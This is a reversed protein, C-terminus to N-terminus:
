MYQQRRVGQMEVRKQRGSVYVAAEASRTDLRRGAHECIGSGGSSRTNLRRGAISVYVVARQVKYASKQEHVYTAARWVGM